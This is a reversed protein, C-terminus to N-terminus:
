ETMWMFSKEIKFYDQNTSFIATPYTFGTYNLNM